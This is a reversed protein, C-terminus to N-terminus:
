DHRGYGSDLHFWERAAPRRLMSTGVIIPLLGVLALPHAGLFVAALALVVVIALALGIMARLFRVDGNRCRMVLFALGVAALACVAGAGRYLTLTHHLQQDSITPAASARIADFSLLASALGGGAVMAAGGFVLWCAATVV